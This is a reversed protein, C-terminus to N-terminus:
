TRRRRWWLALAAIAALLAAGAVLPWPGVQHILRDIVHGLGYGVWAILPGWVAAAIANLVVFRMAPVSSAGIAIPSVTRMGYIFRFALIFATSHRELLKLAQQFRPRDTFRRVWARDRLHRGALFWLQDVLFSGAAAAAAVGWFPLLGKRALVGGTLVVAEGELGAGAFITLM